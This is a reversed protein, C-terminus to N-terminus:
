KVLDCTQIKSCNMCMLFCLCGHPQLLCVHSNVKYVIICWLILCLPLPSWELQGSRMFVLQYCSNTADVIQDDLLLHSLVGQVFSDQQHNKKPLLLLTAMRGLNHTLPIVCPTMGLPPHLLPWRSKLGQVYHCKPVLLFM